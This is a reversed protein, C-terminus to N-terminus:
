HRSNVSLVVSGGSPVSLNEPDALSRKWHRRSLSCKPRLSGEGTRSALVSLGELPLEVQSHSECQLSVVMELPLM